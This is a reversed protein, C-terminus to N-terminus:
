RAPQQSAAPQQDKLVYQYTTTATWSRKSARSFISLATFPTGPNEELKNGNSKQFVRKYTAFHSQQSWHGMVTLRVKPKQAEVITEASNVDSVEVPKQLKVETQEKETKGKLKKKLKKFINRSPFLCSNLVIWFDDNLHLYYISFWKYKWFDSM